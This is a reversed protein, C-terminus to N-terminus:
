WEFHTHLPSEHNLLMVAIWHLRGRALVTNLHAGSKKMATSAEIPKQAMGISGWVRGYGLLQQSNECFKLSDAIQYIYVVWVRKKRDIVEHTYPHTNWQLTDTNGAISGSKGTSISQFSFCNGKWQACVCM